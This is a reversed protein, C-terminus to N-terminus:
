THSGLNLGMSGMHEGVGKLLLKQICIRFYGQTDPPTFELNFIIEVKLICQIYIYELHYMHKYIIMFTCINM